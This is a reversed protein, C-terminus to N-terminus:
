SGEDDEDFNWDDSDQEDDRDLLVTDSVDVESQSTHDM